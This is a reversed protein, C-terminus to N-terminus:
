LRRRVVNADDLALSVQRGGVGEVFIGFRLPGSSTGLSRLPVRELVPVGDMWLTVATEAAKEGLKEIRLRMPEGDPWDSTFLDQISPESQGRRVLRAQVVGDINRVLEVAAHVRVDETRGKTEKALFLGLSVDRGQHITLTVEFSLFRDAPLERMLRTRGESDFMGEIWVQGERLSVGPGHGVDNSWDNGVRGVRDFRDTWVEKSEHDLIRANAAEAYARHPDDDPENRRSDILETFRNHAETSDGSAYYWWALGNRASPLDPRLATAAEFSARAQELASLEFHNFGRRTHVRPRDPDIALAREYYREAAEHEGLDQSLVAMAVLADAFDLERDLAARFSALAGQVDDQQALLRGRQYLTWPDTPDGAHAREIFTSAEEPHGTIEALWSLSRLPLHARFPDAELAQELYTRATRWEGQQTAQLGLALLLDFSADPGDEPLGAEFDMQPGDDTLVGVSYLGALGLDSAPDASQARGFMDLAEAPRGLALYARGLDARIGVRLPRLQHHSPERRQAEVLHERAREARGAELLFRGYRWNALYNRPQRRLGERYCEEAKDAMRFRAYLDGLYAWPAPDTHFEGQTLERYVEFAEEFRFDFELIRARAIRPRADDPNVEICMRCLEEAVQLARPVENRLLICEAAFGLAGEFDGPRLSEGFDRRRLEVHNAPTDALGFDQVLKRAYSIPTSGPWREAGTDPDVEVFLIPENNRALDFREKNKIHGFKLEAIVIWDYLKKQAEIRELREQVTLQTPDQAAGAYGLGRMGPDSGAGPDGAGGDQGGGQGVGGGFGKESEDFLGPVPTVVLPSRLLPGMHRAAPGYATPSALADLAELPPLELPLPALPLTNRPPTFLDRSFEVEREGAPLALDVRPTARAVYATAAGDGRRAGRIQTNSGGSLMGKAGWGLYVALLAFCVLEKRANM